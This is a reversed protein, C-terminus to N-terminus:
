LWGLAGVCCVSEGTGVTIYACSSINQEKLLQFEALAPANVDTDFKFPVNKFEDRFGLLGLVDTHAWHPKPTSTIFGYTASGLKADVPGFSGIGAADFSHANLWERIKSLTIDPTETAFVTRDVFKKPDLTDIAM